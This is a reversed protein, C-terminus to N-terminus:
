RGQVPFFTYSLTITHIDDLDSDDNIAPDIFFTVGLRQEQYPKLMQDAFCFCQLKNFYKGAKVPTINFTATGTSPKSGLNKAGYEITKEEGVKVSIDHLLPKFSWYLNPSVNADFRVVIVRNTIIHPTKLSAIATGGFGTTNCFLRYLPVSAYALMLMGVVVALLSIALSSNSQRSIM